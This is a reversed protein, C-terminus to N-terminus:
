ASGILIGFPVRTWHKALKSLEAALLALGSGVLATWQPSWVQSSIIIPNMSKERSIAALGGAALSSGRRLRSYGPCGGNEPVKRRLSFPTQGSNKSLRSLGWKEPVKAGSHFHHRDRIGPRCPLRRIAM